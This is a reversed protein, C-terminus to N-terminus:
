YLLVPIPMPIVQRMTENNHAAELLFNCFTKSKASKAIELQWAEYGMERCVREFVLHYM